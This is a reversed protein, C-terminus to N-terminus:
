DSKYGECLKFQVHSQPFPYTFSTTFITKKKTYKDRLKNFSNAKNLNPTTLKIQAIAQKTTTTTINM